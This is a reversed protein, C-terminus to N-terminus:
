GGLCTRCFCSNLPFIRWCSNESMVFSAMTAAYLRGGMMDTAVKEGGEGMMSLLGRDRENPDPVGVKEDSKALNFDQQPSSVM